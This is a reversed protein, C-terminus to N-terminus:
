IKNRKPPLDLRATAGPTTPYFPSQTSRYRNRPPKTAHFLLTQYPELRPRLVARLNPPDQLDNGVLPRTLYRVHDDLGGRLVLYLDRDPIKVEVRLRVEGGEVGAWRVLLGAVVEPVRLTRLAVRGPLGAHLVVLVLSLEHRRWRVRVLRAGRFFSLALGRLSSAPFVLPGGGDGGAVRAVVYVYM